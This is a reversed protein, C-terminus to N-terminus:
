FIKCNVYKIDTVSEYIVQLQLKKKNKLTNKKITGVTM